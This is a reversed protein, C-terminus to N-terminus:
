SVYLDLLLYTLSRDHIFMICEGVAKNPVGACAHMEGILWNHLLVPGIFSYLQFSSVM